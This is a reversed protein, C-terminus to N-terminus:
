RGVGHAIAWLVLGLVAYMLMSKAGMRLDTRSPVCADWCSAAVYGLGVGMLFEGEALAPALAGVLVAAGLPLMLLPSLAVPAANWINVRRFQVSGLTWGQGPVKVPLVSFSIPHGRLLLGVLFHMFEHLFTGGLGLLATRLIGRRLRYLLLWWAVVLLLGPALGPTAPTFFPTADTM